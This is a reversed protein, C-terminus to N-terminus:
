QLYKNKWGQEYSIINEEINVYDFDTKMNGESDVTMTFVTWRKDEDMKKRQTSLEIDIKQFLKVLQIKNVGIQNFCDVYKGDGEDFYYKMSYSGDTYRAYFVIKTWKDPMVELLNDFICQFIKNDM